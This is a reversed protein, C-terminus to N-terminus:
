ILERLWRRGHEVVNFVHLAAPERQLIVEKVTGDEERASLLAYTEKVDCVSVKAEALGPVGPKIKDLMTQVWPSMVGQTLM